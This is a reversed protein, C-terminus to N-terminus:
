QVLDHQIAYRILEANNSLALKELIRARFTSVTKPSLALQEAIQSSTKGSALMCLVQYERDSLAEHPAGLRKDDLNFAMLQALSESVYKGGRHVKRIANVLEDSATDKNMYGAAGARLVRVAYQDEPHISSILVALDPHTRALDKLLDIGSKGPMSIDLVVVDWNGNRILEMADRTNSAEGMVRIDDTEGLIQTWGRRVIEHDDVVLVQIM